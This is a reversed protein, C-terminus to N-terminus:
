VGHGTGARRALRARVWEIFNDQPSLEEVVPLRRVVEDVPGDDVFLIIELRELQTMRGFVRSKRNRVEALLEDRDLLRRMTPIAEASLVEALAQGCVADDSPDFGWHSGTVADAVGHRVRPPPVVAGQVFACELGPSRGGPPKQNRYVWDTFPPIVIGMTVYFGVVHALRTGRVDVDLVACDGNGAPLRYERGSRSFGAARMVPAVYERLMVDLPHAM